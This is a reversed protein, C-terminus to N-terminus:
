NRSNAAKTSPYSFPSWFRGLQELCCLIVSCQPKGTNTQGRGPKSIGSTLCIVLLLKILCSIPTMRDTTFTFRRIFIQHRICTAITWSSEKIGGHKRQSTKIVWSDKMDSFLCSFRRFNESIEPLYKGAVQWSLFILKM